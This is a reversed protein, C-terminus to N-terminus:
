AGATVKAAVAAAFADGRAEASTFMDFSACGPSLLVVDGPQALARAISVAEEMSGAHASRSADIVSAIEAAAEGILVVARARKKIATGMASFDTRKSKGGAILIVPQSFAELAAVVASPNTAKSDDVYTVGDQEDVIQLRHPLATFERVGTRLAAPDLGAALGVLVAALVNDVNHQGLLPIESVPMIEVPRPDGTPPAYTIRENRLYLTTLRRAARGFWLARTHVRSSAEGQALTTIIPDDLNGVFTDGPGQNAFIRFKAETYEDM